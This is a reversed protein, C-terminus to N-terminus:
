RWHGPHWHYGRSGEYNWRGPYWKAGPHPSREWYGSSWVWNGAVFAWFGALWVAEPFPIAPVIEFVPEPPPGPAYPSYSRPYPVYAICGVLLSGVLLCSLLVLGPKKM